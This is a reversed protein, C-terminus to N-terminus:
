FHVSATLGFQRPDGQQTYLKRPWDPPENQFYFGRVAYHEDFANRLWAHVSWSEAEYGLKLNALAHASSKQDHDTPVDFYFADMATVDVRAMFGLPHRWTANLAATYGPAHAQERSAVPVQNGEDDVTSGPGSRSRLLGLSGGVELTRTFQYRLSAELGATYGSPLNDTIFVYSNPNTADLQRGSRVQQDKRWQYFLTVDAHGRGGALATKLGTELNWLYEPDFRRAADAEAPDDAVVGLNFGGAKYGRSLATYVTVSDSLETSLSVQGGLMRDTSALDSERPLEGIVGADAYDARRQEYRLGASWRWRPSLFGDLQGFVALNTARYRHALEDVSSYVADGPDAYAGEMLDAGRERMRLAYAGVLWAPAAGPAAMPSALRLELSGTSRTREYAGFYQYTFPAWSGANGWDADFSNTSDSKGYSGIATLTNEGWAATTLRLSAGRARQSDEGPEDSLSTRTNDLAWADYGNDLDAYLFTLDLQTDAGAFWRWKARATLEDRGNTDSAGLYDNRMFGNSRTQQVSVRWASDLAEIGGTAAFGIGREGHNGGSAELSWGAQREPEKGRVVILGALANAGYHTGQPGRLVEIQGVDFLTAPMGLASFDIDDILFGVSPNPAGEYQEREGIGRIQFYRPRSTGGAWNLNPVLGLVDQFHQRGADELTRADLVTVSATVEDLRQARLTGTVIVEELEADAAAAPHPCLVPAAILLAPAGRAFLKRLHM